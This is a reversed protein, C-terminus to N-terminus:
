PLGPFGFGDHLDFGDVGSELRDFDAMRMTKLDSVQFVVAGPVDKDVVLISLYSDTHKSLLFMLHYSM